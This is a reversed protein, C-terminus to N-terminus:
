RWRSLRLSSRASGIRFFSADDEGQFAIRHVAAPTMLLLVSLAVACLAAAHLYQVSHPLENFSKTFTCVFQFSLLAQGGPIIVRAETLMQEIKTKLPTATQNPL